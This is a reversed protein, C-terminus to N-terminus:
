HLNAANSLNRGAKPLSVYGQTESPLSCYSKGLSNGVTRDRSNTARPGCMGELDPKWWRFPQPGRSVHTNASDVYSRLFGTINRPSIQTPRPKALVDDFSSLRPLFCWSLRRSYRMEQVSRRGLVAPLNTGSTRGCHRLRLGNYPQGYM